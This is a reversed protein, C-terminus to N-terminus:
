AATGNATRLQSLWRHATTKPVDALRALVRVSGDNGAAFLEFQRREDTPMREPVFTHLTTGPAEAVLEALFDDWGMVVGRSAASRQAAYFVVKLRQLSV